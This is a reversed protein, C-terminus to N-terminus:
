AFFDTFLPKCNELHQYAVELHYDKFSKKQTQLYTKVNPLDKNNNQIAFDVSSLVELSLFSEFGIIIDLLYELRQKQINSLNNEIYNKVEEFKEYVLELSEFPKAQNQALGKIYVGDLQLLLYQVQQSYTGYHHLQFKLKLDEGLRQLFYALKNAVFVNINEGLVEYHYMAYLLMARAPTLKAQKQPQKELIDKINDIPEYVLVEVDSLNELYKIMLPKVDEWLLGGNGCGLPPIAISKINHQSIINVLNELGKTIYEIESKQKWDKKTPFNIIYKEGTPTLEKVVLSKGIDIQGEKCAKKYIKFNNPFQSKFSFAIGKGMVGVLNVPNVLAETSAELLNGQIFQM